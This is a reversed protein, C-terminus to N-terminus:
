GELDKLMLNLEDESLSDVGGLSPEATPILQIVTELEADSLAEVEPLLSLMVAAPEPRTTARTRVLVLLLGAALALPVAWRVLRVSRSPEPTRLATLVGAAIREIDPAPLSSGLEATRRVLRWEGLCDKCRTLHAEEVASWRAAGQAVAPMRDSLQTCQTM